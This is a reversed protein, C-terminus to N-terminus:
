VHARGIQANALNFHASLNKPNEKIGKKLYNVANKQDDLKIFSVGINNLIKAKTQGNEADVVAKFFVVLSDDFFEQGALAAGLFNQVDSNNPYNELILRSEQELALFDQQVHLFKLNEIQSKDPKKQM